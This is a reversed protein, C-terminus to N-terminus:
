ADGLMEQLHRVANETTFGFHEFMVKGPASRGYRNISMIRGEPGAFRHWLHPTAAEVILRATVNDPLVKQRYAPDQRDFREMSPMSVVRVKRGRKEMERAADLALAVEAGTAIALADIKGNPEYLVYGGRSIDERRERTLEQAPAAQRSLVLATPGQRRLAEGWSVATEVGDCPRWTELFPMIRLGALHEVPQHTPGDEGVGISDHTLVYISRVGMLAANRMSSRMYDSFVLFTGGYPIFGRHLTLGNMVGAMAFERVGYYIYDGNYSDPTVCVSRSTKTKNSDSLDSSGGALEPLVEVLRELVAGSAKRTAVPEM